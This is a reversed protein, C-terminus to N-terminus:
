DVEHTLRTDIRRGLKVSFGKEAPQSPTYVPADPIVVGNENVRVKTEENNAADPVLTKNSNTLTSEIPDAEWGLPLRRHLRRKFYAHVAKFNTPTGLGSIETAIQHWTQRNKRMSKILEFHPELTSQFPKGPM